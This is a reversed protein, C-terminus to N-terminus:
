LMSTQKGSISERQAKAFPNAQPPADIHQSRNLLGEITLMQITPFEKDYLKAKYRGAEAVEKRMPRTPPELTILVGASFKQNTVDGLLTAMDNRSVGVGKVQVLIEKRDDKGDYFQLIGDVGRDAGKGEGAHRPRADVLSLAWQQFQFKDMEALRKHERGIRNAALRM